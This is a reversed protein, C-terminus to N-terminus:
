VGTIIIRALLWLLAPVPQLWTAGGQLLLLLPLVACGALTAAMHNIQRPHVLLTCSVVVVLLLLLLLLRQPDGV